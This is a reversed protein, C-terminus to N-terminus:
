MKDKYQVLVIACKNVLKAALSFKDDVFLKLQTYVENTSRLFANTYLIRM